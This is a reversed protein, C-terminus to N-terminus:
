NAVPMNRIYSDPSVIGKLRLQKITENASKRSEFGNVCIQFYKGSALIFPAYGKAKIREIENMAQQKKVYTMHAITYKAKTIAPRDMEETSAASAPLSVESRDASLVEIAPVPTEPTLASVPSNSIEEPVPATTAVSAASAKSQLVFERHSVAKGHESGWAFVLVFFVIAVLGLALLQDVRLTYKKEFFSRQFAQREFSNSISLNFLDSQM